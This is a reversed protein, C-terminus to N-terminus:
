HDETAPIKKVDTIIVALGAAVSDSQRWAGNCIEAAAAARVTYQLSSALSCLAPRLGASLSGVSMVIRSLKSYIYMCSKGLFPEIELTAEGFVTGNRRPKEGNSAPRRPSDSFGRKSGGTSLPSSPSSGFISFLVNEAFRGGRHARVADPKRGDFFLPRSGRTRRVADPPLAANGTPPPFFTPRFRAFIPKQVITRFFKRRGGTPFVDSPRPQFRGVLRRLGRRELEM